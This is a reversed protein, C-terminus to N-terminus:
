AIGRRSEQAVPHRITNGAVHLAKGHYPFFGDAVPAEEGYLAPIQAPNGFWPFALLNVGSDGERLGLEHVVLLSDDNDVVVLAIEKRIGDWNV